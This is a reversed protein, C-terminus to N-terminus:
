YYPVSGDIQEDNRIDRKNNFQSVSDLRRSRCRQHAAVERTRCFYIGAGVCHCQGNFIVESSKQGFHIYSGSTARCLNSLLHFTRSNSQKQKWPRSPKSSFMATSLEAESCSTWCNVAPVYKRYSSDSPILGIM